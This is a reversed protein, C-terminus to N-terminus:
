AHAWARSLETAWPDKHRRQVCPCVIAITAIAMPATVVMEKPGGDM